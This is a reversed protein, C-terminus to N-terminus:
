IENHQQAKLEIVRTYLVKKKQGTMQAVKRVAEATSMNQILDLLMRDTAEINCTPINDEAPGVVLVIEGRPHSEKNYAASLASLTSTYVSEFTKTLERCLAAPRNAGFIEAMDVLTRSVRHPSEYFILTSDITKLIELRKRRAVQRVALFGCFFFSDTPLGTPILATIVASPGPIPVIPIDAKRAKKVLKFGPDSILPTGADSVLAVSKGSQLANLLRMGAEQANHEHYIVPNRRIAYRELLVRTVRTDESALIDAGALIELARLTIDALNGIPTAVLYLAPKPKVTPIRATYGSPCSPRM